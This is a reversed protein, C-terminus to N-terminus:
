EHRLVEQPDAGAARIAPGASAGLAVVLFVGAAVAAVVPDLPEIAYILGGLIRGLAFAGALGLAIGIAALRLGEGVILKAVSRGSAGLAMRIGLERYRQEVMYSLLGYIGIVALLLAAAAFATLLTTRFRPGALSQDTAEEMTRVNVLPVNPDVKEVAARVSDILRSAPIKSRIAFTATRLTSRELAMYVHAQPPEDLSGSRIDGVVGVVELDGNSGGLTIHRGVPDASGFLGKALSESLLAPSRQGAWDGWEFFRGSRLPIGMAEHYGVSAAVITAPVKALAGPKGIQMHFEGSGLPASNAAGVREVGPIEGIAVLADRYFRYAKTMDTQYARDTLTVEATLIQRTQYGPDTAILRNFTRLLLGASCALMTALAFQTIVLGARARNSAASASGSSRDGLSKQADTRLVSLAPFTGFLVSTALAVLITYGFAVPDLGIDEARPVLGASSLVLARLAVYAFMLGLAAGAASLLLSEVFTQMLLRGGTAGLAARVALERSRGTARALMLNAVNSCAILLVCAVAGLFLELVARADGNQDDALTALDVSFGHHTSPHDEAIRSAIVSAESQAEGITVGPKLRAIANTTAFTRGRAVDRNSATPIWLEATEPFHFDPPMVGAIQHPEGDLMITTNLVSADGHFSRKWLHDSLIVAGDRGAEFEDVTFTRGLRPAVGLVAFFDPTVGVGRLALAPGRGTLIWVGDGYGAVTGLKSSQARFDAVDPMTVFGGTWGRLDNRGRIKVIRSSEPFPLPKLVVTDLVTFVATNAGIGLALTLIATVAFAPSRFLTRISHRIEPLV